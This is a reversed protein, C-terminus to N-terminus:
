PENFQRQLAKLFPLTIRFRVGGARLGQCPVAVFARVPRPRLFVAAGLGPIGDTVRGGIESLNMQRNRGPLQRPRAFSANLMATLAPSTRARTPM